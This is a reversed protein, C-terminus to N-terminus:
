QRYGSEVDYIIDNFMSFNNFVIAHQKQIINVQAFYLGVKPLLTTLEFGDDLRSCTHYHPPLATGDATLLSYEYFSNNTDDIEITSAIPLCVSKLAIKSFEKLQIGDNLFVQFSAQSTAGKPQESVVRLLKVM